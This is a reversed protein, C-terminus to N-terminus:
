TLSRETYRGSGFHKASGRVLEMCFCCCRAFPQKRCSAPRNGNAARSLMWFLACTPGRTPLPSPEASWASDLLRFFSRLSGRKGSWGKPMSGSSDLFAIVQQTTIHHLDIDGRPRLFSRLRRMPSDFRMGADRKRQSYLDVVQSPTM